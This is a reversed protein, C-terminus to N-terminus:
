KEELGRECKLWLLLFVNAFWVNIVVGEEGRLMAVSVTVNKM